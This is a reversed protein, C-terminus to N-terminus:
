HYGTDLISNLQENDFEGFMIASNVEQITAM